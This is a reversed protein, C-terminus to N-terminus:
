NRHSFESPIDQKTLMIFKQLDITKQIAFIRSILLAGIDTSNSEMCGSNVLRQQGYQEHCHVDGHAPHSQKLVISKIVIIM